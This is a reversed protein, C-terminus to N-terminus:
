EALEAVARVIRDPCVPADAPLGRGKVDHWVAYLGLAKAPAIDASLNDGVMWAEAPGVGLADLAHRFVREDPKGCGFAGEIVICAFLPRLDYRDIKHAQVEAAGNTVLALRVGAARLRRLAAIAGPFPEVANEHLDTRVQAMELALEPDPRGLRDLVAAIVTRRAAVMDLRGRRHREADSWFWNTEATLRDYLAAATVGGVRPAYRRSVERWCAESAAGYALITDDLDFLIAPPLAPALRRPSATPRMVHPLM